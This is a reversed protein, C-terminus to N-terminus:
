ANTEQESVAEKELDDSKDPECQEEPSETNETDEASQKNGDENKDEDDDEDDDFAISLMLAAINVTLIIGITFWRTRTETIKTLIYGLKPIHWKYTGIVQYPYVPHFDNKENNDGKTIYEEDRIEVVRHTVLLGEKIASLNGNGTEIAGTTDMRYTIVDGVEPDKDKYDIVAVSGVEITPEMSSSLVVYPQEHFIYPLIISYTAICAIILFTIVKVIVNFAKVLMKLTNHM